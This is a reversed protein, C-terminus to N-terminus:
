CDHRRRVSSDKVVASGCEREMGVSVRKRKRGNSVVRGLLLKKVGGM